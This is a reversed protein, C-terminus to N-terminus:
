WWFGVWYASVSKGNATTKGYKVLKGVLMSPNAKDVPYTM